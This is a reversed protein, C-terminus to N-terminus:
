VSPADMDAPEEPMEIHEIEEEPLEHEEEGALKEVHHSYEHAIMLAEKQEIGKDVLRDVLGGISHDNFCKLEKILEEDKMECLPKKDEPLGHEMFEKCLEKLEAIGAQEVFDDVLLSVLMEKVDKALKFAM